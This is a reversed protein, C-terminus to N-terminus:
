RFVIHATAPAALAKDGDRQTGTHAAANNMVSLNEVAGVTHGTLHPVHRNLHVALFTGAATTATPLLIGGGIGELALRGSCQCLMGVTNQGADNRLVVAM